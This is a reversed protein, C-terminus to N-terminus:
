TTVHLSLTRGNGGHLRDIVSVGRWAAAGLWAMAFSNVIFNGGAKNDRGSGMMTPARYFFRNGDKDRMVGVPTRWAELVRWFDPDADCYEKYLSEVFGWSEKSHTGDFM